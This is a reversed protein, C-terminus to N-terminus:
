SVGLHRLTKGAKAAAYESLLRETSLPHLAGHKRANKCQLFLSSSGEALIMPERRRGFRARFVAVLEKRGPAGYWEDAAVQQVQLPRRPEEWVEGILTQATKPCRKCYVAVYRTRYDGRHDLGSLAKLLRRFSEPVGDASAASDSGTM